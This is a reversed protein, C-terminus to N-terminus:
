KIALPREFEDTPKWYVSQSFHRERKRQKHATYSALRWGPERHGRENHRRWQGYDASSGLYNGQLVKVYDNVQGDYPMSLVGSDDPDGVYLYGPNNPGQLGDIGLAVAQKIALVSLGNINGAINAFAASGAAGTTNNTLTGVIAAGQVNTLGGANGIIGHALVLPNGGGGGDVSPFLSLVGDLSASGSIGGACDMPGDMVIDAYTSLVMNGSGDDIQLFDGNEAYSDVISGKVNLSTANTLSLGGLTVASQGNTLVLGYVQGANLMGVFNNSSTSGSSTPVANTTSKGSADLGLMM